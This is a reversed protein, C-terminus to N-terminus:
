LPSIIVELEPLFKKWTELNFTKGCIPCSGTVLGVVAQGAMGTAGTGLLRMVNTLYDSLELKKAAVHECVYSIEGTSRTKTYDTSKKSERKLNEAERANLRRRVDSIKNLTLSSLDPFKELAIAAVRRVEDPVNENEMVNTLPNIARKDGINSLAYVAKKQTEANEQNDVLALVISDIASTGMKALDDWQGLRILFNIRETEDLPNYNLKKLSNAARSRVKNEKDNLAAVLHEIVRPEQIGGLAEAADARVSPKGNKLALILPEIAKNAGMEGLAKAAEGAVYENHSSSNAMSEKLINILKRVNKKEKLKAIYDGDDKPKFLLDFLGM